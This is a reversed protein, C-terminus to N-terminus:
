WRCQNPGEPQIVRFDLSSVEWDLRLPRLNAVAAVDDSSYVKGQYEFVIPAKHGQKEWARLAKRFEVVPLRMGQLEEATYRFDRDKAEIVRVTDEQYGWVKLPNNGLIIHNSTDGETRLNSFMSFNGATRLGLYSTLGFLLLMLPFAYLFKPTRGDFISVGEWRWEHKHSLLAALIPWILILVGGNFFIGQMAEIKTFLPTLYYHIGSLLGAVLNLGVYAHIRDFRLTGLHFCREQNWAELVTKPVFALLLAVALAQFDVFGIMGLYTHFLLAFCLFFAQLRPVILLLGEILQWFVILAAFVTVILSVRPEILTQLFNGFAGAGSSVSAGLIVVIGGGLVLWLSRDNRQRFVLLVVAAAMLM